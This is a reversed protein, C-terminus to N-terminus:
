TYAAYFEGKLLDVDLEIATKGDVLADELKNLRQYALARNTYYAPNSPDAAIAETYLAVALPYQEKKFADNGKQKKSEGLAAKKDEVQENLSLLRESYSESRELLARRATRKEEDDGVAILDTWEVVKEVYGYLRAVRDQVENLEKPDKPEIASLFTAILDIEEEIGRLKSDVTTM